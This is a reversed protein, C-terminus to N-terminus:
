FYGRKKIFFKWLDFSVFYIKLFIRVDFKKFKYKKCVRIFYLCMILCELCIFFIDKINLFILEDFREIVFTGFQVSKLKCVYYLVLLVINEVKVCVESLLPGDLIM